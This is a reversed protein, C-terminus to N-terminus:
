YVGIFSLTPCVRADKIHIKLGETVTEPIKVIKKYGVTNGQYLLNGERDSVEFSEIRQSMQINEKLVLHTVKTLGTFTISIEAERTGDETKFFGEYCDKRVQEIEHGKEFSDVSIEAEELLNKAFVAKLYAGIENLRNVDNEHFLGEKTPPINLLFTANGGVSNYYIHLLEEL